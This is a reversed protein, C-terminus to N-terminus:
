SAAPPPWAGPILRGEADEAGCAEGACWPRVLLLLGGGCVPKREVPAVGRPLGLAAPPAAVLIAAAAFTATAVAGPVSPVCRVDKRATGGHCTKDADGGAM